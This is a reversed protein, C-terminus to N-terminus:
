PLWSRVARVFRMVLQIVLLGFAFTFAAGLAALAAPDIFRSLAGFVTLGWTAIQQRYWVTWTAPLVAEVVAELGDGVQLIAWVGAEWIM